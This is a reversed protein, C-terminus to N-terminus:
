RFVALGAIFIFVARLKLDKPEYGKALAEPDVGGKPPLSESTHQHEM